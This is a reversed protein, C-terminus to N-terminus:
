STALALPQENRPPLVPSVSYGLQNNGARMPVTDVAATSQVGPVARARELIDGWAARILAPNARTAPSLAVRTVLVYRVDVGPDVSSLRLMTRGLMGASVLLVVALTVESIVFAGHLRRSS